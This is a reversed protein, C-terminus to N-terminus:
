LIKNTKSINNQTKVFLQDVITRASQNSSHTPCVESTQVKFSSLSILPYFFPSFISKHLHQCSAPFHPLYFLTLLPKIYFLISYKPPCPLAQSARSCYRHVTLPPAVVCYPRSANPIFTSSFMSELLETQLLPKVHILHPSQFNAQQVNLINTIYIPTRSTHLIQSM